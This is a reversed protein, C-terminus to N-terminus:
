DGGEIINDLNEIIEQISTIADDITECYEESKLYREGSHLNEPMNERAEDEDNKISELLSVLEGLQDKIASLEKRRKDNM